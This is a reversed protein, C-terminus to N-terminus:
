FAENWLGFVRKYECGNSIYGRYQRVKKNANRRKLKTYHKGLHTETLVEFTDGDENVYTKYYYPTPYGGVNTLKEHRKKYVEEKHKRYEFSRNKKM